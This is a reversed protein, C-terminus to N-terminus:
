TQTAMRELALCKLSRSHASGENAVSLLAVVLKTRAIKALADDTYDAAIESWADCFAQYVVNLADSSGFYAKDILERPEM